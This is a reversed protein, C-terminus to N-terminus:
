VESADLIRQRRVSLQSSYRGDGWTTSRVDVDREGIMRSIGEADRADDLGAGILKITAASWLTRM